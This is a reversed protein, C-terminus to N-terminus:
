IINWLLGIAIDFGHCGAFCGCTTPPLVVSVAVLLCARDAANAKLRPAVCYNYVLLSSNFMTVSCVFLCVFLCVFCFARGRMSSVSEGSLSPYIRPAYSTLTEEVLVIILCFMQFCAFPALNRLDYHDPPQHNERSRALM